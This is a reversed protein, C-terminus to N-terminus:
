RGNYWEELPIGDVYLEDVTWHITWTHDQNGIEELDPLPIAEIQGPQLGSVSYESSYHETDTVFDNTFTLDLTYSTNNTFFVAECGYEKHWMTGAGILQEQLVYEVELMAATRVMMADYYAYVDPDAGFIDYMDNVRLVVGSLEYLATLNEIRDLESESLTQVAIATWKAEENLDYSDFVQAALHEFEPLFMQHIEREAEPSVYEYEGIYALETAYVTLANIFDLDAGDLRAAPLTDPEPVAQVTEKSVIEIERLSDILESISIDPLEFSDAANSLVKPLYLFVCVALAAILAIVVGLVAFAARTNKRSNEADIETDWMPEAEPKREFDNM